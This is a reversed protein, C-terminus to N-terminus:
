GLDEFDTVNSLGYSVELLIMKSSYGAMVEAILSGSYYSEGLLTFM